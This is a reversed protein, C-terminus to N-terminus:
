FNYTFKVFYERPRAYAVEAYGTSTDLSSVGATRYLEDTANNIGASVQWKQDESCSISVHLSQLPIWRPM